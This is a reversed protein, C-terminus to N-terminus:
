RRRFEHRVGQASQNASLDVGPRTLRSFAATRTVRPGSSTALFSLRVRREDHAAQRRVVHRSLRECTAYLEDFLERGEADLGINDSADLRVSADVVTYAPIPISSDFREGVYRADALLRVADSSTGPSVPNM